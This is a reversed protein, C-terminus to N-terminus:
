PQGVTPALDPDSALQEASARLAPDAETGSLEQLASRAEQRAREASDAAAISDALEQEALELQPVSYVPIYAVSPARHVEDGTEFIPVAAARIVWLGPGPLQIMRERVGAGQELTITDVLTRMATSFGRLTFMGALAPSMTVAAPGFTSLLMEVDAAAHAM